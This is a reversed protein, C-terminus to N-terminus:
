GDNGHFRFTRQETEDDHLFDRESGNSPRKEEDQKEKVSDM